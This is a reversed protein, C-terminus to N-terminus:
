PVRTIPTNKHRPPRGCSTETQAHASALCPQPRGGERKRQQQGAHKHSCRPWFLGEIPESQLRRHPEARTGAGEKMMMVVAEFGAWAPRTETAPSLSWLRDSLPRPFSQQQHLLYVSAGTWRVYQSKNRLSGVGVPFRGMLLVCRRLSM